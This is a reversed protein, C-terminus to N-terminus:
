ITERLSEYADDQLEELTEYPGGPENNLWEPSPTVAEYYWGPAALESLGHWIEEASVYFLRWRYRGLRVVQQVLKGETTAVTAGAHPSSPLRDTRKPVRHKKPKPMPAEM